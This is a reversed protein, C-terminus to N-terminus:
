WLPRKAPIGTRRPINEPTPAVKQAAVSSVQDGSVPAARGLGLEALAEGPWRVESSAADPPESVLLWGGLRLFPAACEATVAPRSFSRAVVADFGNRLAPDRGAVEARERVVTVRDALGLRAVAQECFATRRTSADLLTARATPWVEALVLGPVGAGSGLDLFSGPADIRGALTRAHRVHREVPDPGLFGLARAEELIAELLGARDM